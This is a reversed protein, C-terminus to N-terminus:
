FTFSLNISFLQVRDDQMLPSRRIWLASGPPEIDINDWQVKLALDEAFDWRVGLTTTQQELRTSMFTYTAAQYLEQLQAQQQPPLFPLALPPELQPVEETHRVTAFVGYLTFDQVRHGVSIYGSIYPQLLEWNTDTYGIESQMLWNGSDWKVGAAYYESIRNEYRIDAAINGAQPWLTPPVAEIASILLNSQASDGSTDSRAFALRWLWEQSSLSLTLASIADLEIDINQDAGALEANNSGYALKAEFLYQDLNRQYTIDLGDYRSISSILSYFEPVPRVWLYAYSVDKYESLMYLDLGLRGARFSWNENPRYRLFAWELADELDKSARDKLVLQVLADFNDNFQANLQLGLMSDANFTWGDGAGDMTYDRHFLLEDSDSHLAGVSGFGSFQVDTDAYVCGVSLSWVLSLSILLTRFM